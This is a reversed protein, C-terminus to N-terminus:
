AVVIRVIGSSYQKAIIDRIIYPIYTWVAAQLNYSVIFYIVLQCLM